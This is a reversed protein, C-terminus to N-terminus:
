EGIDRPPFVFRVLIASVITWVILISIETKGYPKNMKWKPKGPASECATRLHKKAFRITASRSFLCPQDLYPDLSPRKQFKPMRWGQIIGLLAVVSERAGALAPSRRRAGFTGVEM